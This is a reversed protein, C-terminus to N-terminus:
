RPSAVVRILYQDAATSASGAHEGSVFLRYQGPEWRSAAAFITVFGDAGPQLANVAAVAEITDDDRVRALEVRYLGSQAQTEPLIRLAIAQGPAPLEITADFGEARKRFVGQTSGIALGHGASDVLSSLSAAFVPAAPRSNWFFVGIGIVLAAVSAALAFTRQRGSAPSARLLSDLEGGERLTQLGVKLRATAELERLAQPSERLYAEFSAREAETVQDALYRNGISPDGSIINTVQM